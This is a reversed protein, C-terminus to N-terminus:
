SENDNLETIAVADHQSLTLHYSLLKSGASETAQRGPAVRDPIDKLKQLGQETYNILTIPRLM